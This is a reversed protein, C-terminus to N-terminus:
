GTLVRIGGPEGSFVTRFGCGLLAKVDSPGELEPLIVVVHAGNSKIADALSCPDTSSPQSAWELDKPGASKAEPTIEPDTSSLVTGTFFVPAPNEVVRDGTFPLSLYQHWPLVVVRNGPQLNARVAQDAAYWDSPYHVPTLSLSIDHFENWGGLLLALVIVVGGLAWAVNGHAVAPVSREASALLAAILIVVAVLWLALWKEPERYSRLLTVHEGLKAAVTVGGPLATSASVVLGVVGVSLLWSQRRDVAVSVIVLLAVVLALVPWWAAAHDLERFRFTREAWFGELGVLRPLLGYPTGNARFLKFDAPGFSAVRRLTQSGRGVLFAVVGYSLVACAAAVGVGTARIVERTVDTREAVLRAGVIVVALLFFPPSFATTLAISGALLLSSPLRPRAFVSDLSAYCLFLCAAAAAVTWQGEVVREYVWPNLVGLAGCPLRAWSPFHRLAVMPAFSCLFLVGLVYLKGTMASGVLDAVFRQLAGIPLYFGADVTPPRRGWVTDVLLLYGSRFTAHALGAALAASAIASSLWWHRGTSHLDADPRSRVLTGRM